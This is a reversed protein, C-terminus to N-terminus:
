NKLGQNTFTFVRKNGDADVEINMVFPNWSSEESLSVIETNKELFDISVYADKQFIRTKRM